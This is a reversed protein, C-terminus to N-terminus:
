VYGWVNNTFIIRVVHKGWYALKSSLIIFDARESLKCNALPGQFNSGICVNTFALFPIGLQNPQLSGNCALDSEQNEGDRQSKPQM